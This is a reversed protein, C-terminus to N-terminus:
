YKMYINYIYMYKNHKEPISIIFYHTLNLWILFSIINDLINLKKPHTFFPTVDSLLSKKATMEDFVTMKLIINAYIKTYILSMALFDPSFM